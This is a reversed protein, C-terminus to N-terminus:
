PMAGRVTWNVTGISWTSGAVAVLHTMSLPAVQFTLAPGAAGLALALAARVTGAHAVVAIRGGRAALTEWAPQTRRCLDNFSEGGPPRHAALEDPPLPGLDPLDAFAMGEWKGFDQEWLRADIEPAAHDPWLARATQTCRLAPSSVRQAVDGIAARLAALVSTDSCDAAEDSRGALRGGERIPAHRILLLETRAPRTM